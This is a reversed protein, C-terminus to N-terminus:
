GLGKVESTIRLFPCTLIAPLLLGSLRGQKFTEFRKNKLFMGHCISYSTCSSHHLPELLQTLLALTSLHQSELLGLPLLPSPALLRHCAPTSPHWSCLIPQSIITLLLAPFFSLFPSAPLPLSPANRRRTARSLSLSLRETTDM